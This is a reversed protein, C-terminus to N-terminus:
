TRRNRRQESATAWRVNGPEYNGNVDIRDISYGRGPRDGVDAYFAEFSSDWRACVSIGRGGYLPWDKGNADSCRRRMNCWAEYEATHRRGHTRQRNGLQERHLCGCSTTNGSLLNGARVLPTAGCDCHCSFVREGNGANAVREVVVLRGYRGGPEIPAARKGM